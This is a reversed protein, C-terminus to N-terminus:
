IIKETKANELMRKEEKIRKNTRPLEVRMGALWNESADWNPGEQQTYLVIDCSERGNGDEAVNIMVLDNGKDCDDDFNIFFRDSRKFALRCCFYRCFSM